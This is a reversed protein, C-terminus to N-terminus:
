GVHRHVILKFVSTVVDTNYLIDRVNNFANCDYGNKTFLETTIPCKLLINNVSIVNKCVCTVTQSYKTNWSCVIKPFKLFQVRYTGASTACLLCAKNPTCYFRPFPPWISTFSASFVNSISTLCQPTCAARVTPEGLKTFTDTKHRKGFWRSRKFCEKTPTFGAPTGM